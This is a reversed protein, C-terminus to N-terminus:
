VSESGSSRDATVPASIFGVGQALLCEKGRVTLDTVFRFQQRPDIPYAKLQYHSGWPKEQAIVLVPENYRLYPSTLGVDQLLDKVRAADHHPHLYFDAVCQLKPTGNNANSVAQNWLKLHPICVVTDDPTVIQVTRIGVHTVEGYNGNIEIWDGNRYPREGVAVVGAILSGAYDKLAFGLALGLSGFVAVMNQLSPEIVRPVALLIAMVIFILRLLPVMALLFFRPKGHLRNAIWPLLKQTAMILLAAGIVILILELITGSDPAKFIQELQRKEM